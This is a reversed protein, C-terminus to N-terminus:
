DTRPPIVQQALRWVLDVQEPTPNHPDLRADVSPLKPDRLFQWPQVDLAKAFKAQWILSFQRVTTKDANGDENVYLWPRASREFRSVDNQWISTDEFLENVRAALQSQTLGRSKRIEALYHLPTPGLEPPDLPMFGFQSLAQGCDRALDTM